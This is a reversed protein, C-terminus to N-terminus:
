LSILTSTNCPHIIPFKGCVALSPEMGKNQISFHVQQDMQLQYVRCYEKWADGSIFTKNPENTIMFEFYFKEATLFSVHFIRKEHQKVNYKKLLVSRGYCPLVQAAHIICHSSLLQM